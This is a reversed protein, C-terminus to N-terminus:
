GAPLPALHTRSLPVWRTAGLMAIAGFASGLYIGGFVGAAPYVEGGIEVVSSAVVVAVVATAVAAGIVSSLSNVASAAATCGSENGSDDVATIRVYYRTGGSLQTVSTSVTQASGPSRTRAIRSRSEM